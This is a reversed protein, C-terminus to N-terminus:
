KCAGFAADSMKKAEPAEPNTMKALDAPSYNATLYEALCSCKLRAKEEAAGNQMASSICPPVFNKKYSERFEKDSKQSSDSCGAIIGVVLFCLLIVRIVMFLGKATNNTAFPITEM